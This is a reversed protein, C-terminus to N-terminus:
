NAMEEGGAAVKIRTGKPMCAITKVFSIQNVTRPSVLGSLNVYLRM